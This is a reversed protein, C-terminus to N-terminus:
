FISGVLETSYQELLLNLFHIYADQLVYHYFLKRGCSLAILLIIASFLCCLLLYMCAYMFVCVSLVKNPLGISVSPLAEIKLPM